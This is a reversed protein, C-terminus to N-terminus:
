RLLHIAAGPGHRRVSGFRLDHDRRRCAKFATILVANCAVSSPRCSYRPFKVSTSSTIRQSSLAHLDHRATTRARHPVSAARQTHFDADSCAGRMQHFSNDPRINTCLHQLERMRFPRPLKRAVARGRVSRDAVSRRPIDVTTSTWCPRATSPTTKDNLVFYTIPRHPRRTYRRLIANIHAVVSHQLSQELM